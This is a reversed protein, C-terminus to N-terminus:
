TSRGLERQANAVIDRVIRVEPINWLVPPGPPESAWAHSRRRSGDWVKPFEGFAMNGSRDPLEKVIPPPLASLYESTTKNGSIGGIVVVRRDTLVYRTHRFSLARAIFRGFVFYLGLCAFLTGFILFPIPTDEGRDATLTAVLSSIGVSVALTAWVLSFPIMIADPPRLLKLRQPRGEWLTREGPLLDVGAMIM